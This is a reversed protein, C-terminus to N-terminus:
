LNNSGLTIVKIPDTKLFRRQGRGGTPFRIGVRCVTPDRSEPPEDPLEPYATPKPVEAVVTDERPQEDSSSETEQMLTESPQSNSLLPSADELSAAMARRLEEDEDDLIQGTDSFTGWCSSFFECAM